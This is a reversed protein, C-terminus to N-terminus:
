ISGRRESDPGRPQSSKHRRRQAHRAHEQPLIGSVGAGYVAGARRSGQFACSQRSGDCKPNKPDINLVRWYLTMAIEVLSLAGGLHGSGARCIMDTMVYRFEGALRDFEERDFRDQM